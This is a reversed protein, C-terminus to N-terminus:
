IKIKRTRKPESFTPTHLNTICSEELVKKVRKSCKAGVEIVQKVIGEKEEKGTNSTERPSDKHNRELLVTSSPAEEEPNLVQFQSM